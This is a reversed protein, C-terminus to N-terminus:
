MINWKILQGYSIKGKEITLWTPEKWNKVIIYFIKTYLNRTCNKFMKKSNIRKFLIVSDFTIFMRAVGSEVQRVSKQQNMSVQVFGPM